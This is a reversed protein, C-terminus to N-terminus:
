GLAIEPYQDSAGMLSVTEQGIIAIVYVSNPYEEPVGCDVVLTAGHEARYLIVTRGSLSAALIEGYTKDGVLATGAQNPAINVFLPAYPNESAKWEADTDDWVLMDGDNTGEPLSAGGINLKACAAIMDPITTYDGVAAGDAIDAYADTLNGGNKLYLAQLSEVTTKM